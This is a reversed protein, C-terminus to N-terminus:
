VECGAMSDRCATQGYFGPSEIHKICLWAYYVTGRGYIGSGGGSMGWRCSGGFGVGIGEGVVERGGGRGVSGLTGRVSVDIHEANICKAVFFGSKM